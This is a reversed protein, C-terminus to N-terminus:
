VSGVFAIPTRALALSGLQPPLWRKRAATPKENVTIAEESLRHAEARSAGSM